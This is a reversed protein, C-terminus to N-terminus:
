LVVDFGEFGPHGLLTGQPSRGSTHAKRFAESETWAVFADKTDWTSHSVFLTHDEGAPARLLHFDQFGPVEDLYSNRKRWVEEFTAEKGLAVRFRNTAVYM